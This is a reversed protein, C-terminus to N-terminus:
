VLAWGLWLWQCIYRLEKMPPPSEISKMANDMGPRYQEGALIVNACENTNFLPDAFM